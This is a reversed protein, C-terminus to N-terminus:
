KSEDAAEIKEAQHWYWEAFLEDVLAADASWGEASSLAVILAERDNTRVLAIKGAFDQGDAGTASVASAYGQRKGVVVKQPKGIKADTWGRSKARADILYKLEEDVPTESAETSSMVLVSLNDLMADESEPLDKAAYLLLSGADVQTQWDTPVRVHFWSNADSVEQMKASCGALSMAALMVALVLASTLKLRRM